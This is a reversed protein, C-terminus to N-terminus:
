LPACARELWETEEVDLYPSINEYVKKHYNNLLEKEKDDMLEINILDRDFPVLTLHEFGMFQGYETKERKVCLILNELRIGFRGEIYIGPEDSTVMGEELVANEGPYPLIHYRFANPPEHVNLLYGVGHGTGHNYNCGMDWLPKRAIYDLSVGTCGYLFHADCLNLNGRLVATYYKKQEETARNGILITRTIDTTGELYHGGTDVLLLNGPEVAVDTGPVASYHVIAGHSGYGAITDFSPEIYNEGRSRIKELKEILSLESMQTRGMNKKIWYIFRTVAVGDKIHAEKINATEINNKVAKWLVSPNVLDLIKAEAPINNVISYNVASKDLMIKSGPGFDKVYSYIDNYDRVLVGADALVNEVKWDLAGKGAFLIIDEIGIILYSLVVPNCHVDNGRINLIWAIDDLTSVIHYDAGHKRMYERIRTIKDERKEGAYCIDLLMAPQPAIQPREQWIEGVLDLSSNIKAGTVEFSALIDEAWASPVTRGDFGLVEGAQLNEVIYDKIKITGETGAKYLKIGSGKLQEEAQIFYRGDTWLGAEEMTVVVTGASGDFGSIFERCKFYNGTYESNHFDNSPIYYMSIGNEKMCIRLADVRQAIDM